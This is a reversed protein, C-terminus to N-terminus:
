AAGSLWPKKVPSAM